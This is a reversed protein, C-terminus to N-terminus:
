FEDEYSDDGEFSGFEGMAEDFISGEGASPDPGFQGPVEGRATVTRPYLAGQEARLTSSLELYYARDGLADFLFILRDKSKKILDGLVASEMPVPGQGEGGMDMVTYEDLMEWERNSTFFSDMSAKDYGLDTCIFDHFGLLTMDYMVEYERLFRDNEDSLMTFKFVMSM